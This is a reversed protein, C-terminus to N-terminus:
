KFTKLEKLAIKCKKRMDEDQKAVDKEAKARKTHEEEVKQIYANMKKEQWTEM